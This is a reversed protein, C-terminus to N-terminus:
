FYAFVSALVWALSGTNVAHVFLYFTFLLAFITVGENEYSGLVSRSTGRCIAILAVAILGGPTGSRMASPTPMDLASM